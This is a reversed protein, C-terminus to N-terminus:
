DSDLDFETHLARVSKEVDSEKVICTITLDSTGIMAINVGQNALTRFMRATVGPTDVIGLGVISVAAYDADYILDQGGMEKVMAKMPEVIKELDTRPFTFSIDTVNKSGSISQIVLNLNVNKEAVTEFVRAAIGPRDPIGVITMKAVNRDHTVGRVLADEMKGEEKIKEEAMVRTGENEMFTSRSHIIVNYRKALAVSRLYLVKSGLKAMSLMEDYGIYAWKRAKPAVRPDASYIGDVDSYIECEDAGLVAALAVATSDSGGRGLTAVAQGETVGQFGAVVVINGEKCYKRIMEKGKIEKIKAKTHSDDTILGIQAGSLSIAQEGLHHIAMTLLAITQHEGTALLRDMERDSPLPTIQKALEILRDTTKGMASVVVVVQNGAQKTRIVRQAVNKIKEPDAVSSGGYKQVFLPMDNRELYFQNLQVKIALSM